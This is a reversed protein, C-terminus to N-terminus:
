SSLNEKLCIDQLKSELLMFSALILAYTSISQIVSLNKNLEVVLTTINVNITSLNLVIIFIVTVAIIIVGWKYQNEPM